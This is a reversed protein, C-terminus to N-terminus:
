STPGLRSVVFLKDVSSGSPSEDKSAGVLSAQVSQRWGEHKARQANEEDTHGLMALEEENISENNSESKSQNIAGGGWWARYKDIHIEDIQIDTQRDINNRLNAWM